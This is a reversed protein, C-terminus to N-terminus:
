VGDRAIEFRQESDFVLEGSEWARLRDTVFFTEADATLEADCRIAVDFGERTLSAERVAVARASLPDGEAIEYDDVTAYRYVTGSDAITSTRDDTDM